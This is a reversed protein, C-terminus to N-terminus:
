VTHFIVSIFCAISLGGLFFALSANQELILERKIYDLVTEDNERGMVRHAVAFSVWTFAWGLVLAGAIWGAGILLSESESFGATTFMGIFFSVALSVIFFSAGVASNQVEEIEHVLKSPPLGLWAMLLVSTGQSVVISLISWVLAGFLQQAVQTM